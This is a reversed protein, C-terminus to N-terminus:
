SSSLSFKILKGKVGFNQTIFSVTVTVLLSNFKLDPLTERSTKKRRELYEFIANVSIDDISIM